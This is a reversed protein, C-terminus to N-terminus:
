QMYNEEFFPDQIINTYIDKNKKQEVDGGCLILRDERLLMLMGLASVRDFNGDPNWQALEKLLALNRIKTLQPVTVEQDVGDVKRIETRPLLLWNRILTRAYNNIPVTARTGKATNGFLAGKIMQKDKLFDLTDTLMYLCNMKSFYSFLGKINNEFNLKANYFLCLLRCLEYFDDAFMPRGTYEAVIQDTWLDMIFISGLSMTASVDNDFPDCNHTPIYNCMFTHTDCEFNYIIGKYPEINIRHVKFYIYNLDESMWIKKVNHSDFFESQTCRSLKLDNPYWEKVIKTYIKSVRLHYKSQPTVIKHGVISTGKYDKMRTVGGVIGLSFLIDQMDNLLKLSISVFEIQNNTVCGDSALYGLILYKKLNLPIYKIWEALHKNKAGCGINNRIFTNLTKCCFSYEVCSGCDKVKTFERNFLTKVIYEAHKIYQIEKANFSININYGNGSAWGDGIILGLLWWFGQKNLPNEVKRDIRADDIWNHMFPKEKRYINPSKVVDGVKLDKVKKFKFDYSFYRYPVNDRKAVKSNHYNIKPTACYIPHEESFTTSDYIGYLKVNYVPNENYYRQLNKIEVFRGDINILKDELTVEEVRKLGKETNVMEGEKLCGAIYRDNFVKGNKDKEPLSFIEIAGELKNDKHPFHRIPQASTPKFEISNDSKQVLTGVYVDQYETPNGELEGIRDMISAVPFISGDRRMIAEQLTLPNEAKTRTLAMPDTTNYKVIFRNYVIELVAKTVDSIGDKNYCGKRNIPAGFFFISKGKGQQSKDYVNQVAQMNFGEPNYIIEQAGAFDAGESGGTGIAIIQGFVVDGEQVSPLLVRYTDVIKIFNGFEEIIIRSSRKGRVKDPDDKSSVGLVENLTGKQIGTDVDIYGKKWNMDQLSNKIRFNPFINFQEQFDIMEVFKNLTGDKVLYEKQYATVLARVKECTDQNEGVEFLKSLIAAVYYSKSAGRRAIEASHKGNLRSMEYYVARWLVGEWFEPFDIVRDAIKTGKRIKSQVIPCYNLYWYMDGTVYAGDSPRIMGNWIRDVETHIWKGFESNPNPNLAFKTLCKHEKYFLATPRFYDTNEVIYPNSLDLIARGKEDRPADKAYPRDASILNHIYPISNIADFFDNQVEQPYSSINLEEISSQFKNFEM